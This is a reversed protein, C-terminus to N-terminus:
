RKARELRRSLHNIFAVLTDVTEQQGELYGRIYKKNQRMVYDINKRKTTESEARIDPTIM